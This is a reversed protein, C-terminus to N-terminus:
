EKEIIYQTEVSEITDIVETEVIPFAFEINLKKYFLPQSNEYTNLDTGRADKFSSDKYFKYNKDEKFHKRLYQIVRRRDKVVRGVKDLSKNDEKDILRISCLWLPTYTYSREIDYKFNPNTSPIERDRRIVKNISKEVETLSFRVKPYIKEQEPLIEGGDVLINDVGTVDKILQGFFKIWLNENDM